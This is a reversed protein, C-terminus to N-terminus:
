HQMPPGVFFFKVLLRLSLPFLLISQRVTDIRVAAIPHTQVPWAIRDASATLEQLNKAYQEDLSIRKDLIKKTEHLLKLEDNTIVGLIRYGEDNFFCDVFRSSSTM